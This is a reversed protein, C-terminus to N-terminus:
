RTSTSGYFTQMYTFENLGNPNNYSITFQYRVNGNTSAQSLNTFSLNSITVKDSTIQVAPGGAESVILKGSSLSIVVPSKAPFKTSALTLTGASTTKAPLTISDSDRVLQELYSTVFVAQQNVEEITSSKNKAQTFFNLFTVLSIVFISVMGIYLIMEVLTFARFRRM